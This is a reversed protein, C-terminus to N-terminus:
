DFADEWTGRTAAKAYETARTEFFNSHEAGNLMDELWPLPNRELRHIPELGLQALRRDALYRIYAKVQEASLGEVGGLEFATKFVAKEDEDLFDLHRVSGERATISSWVADNNRGKEELLTELYRNRVIFSGSLTKHVYANATNPEIGPSAFDTLLRDRSPDTVVKIGRETHVVNLMVATV